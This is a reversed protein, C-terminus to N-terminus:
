ASARLRPTSFQNPYALSCTPDVTTAFSPSCSANTRPPSRSEIEADSASNRCGREPCAFTRSSSGAAAITVTEAICRRSSLSVSEAEAVEGPPRRYDPMSFLRGATESKKKINFLNAQQRLTETLM